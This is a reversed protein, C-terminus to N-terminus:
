FFGSLGITPIKLQDMWGARSPTAPAKPAQPPPPSAQAQAPQSFLSYVQKAAHQRSETHPVGPRFYGQGQAASGTFYQAFFEASGKAPASEFVRTWGILSGGKDHQGAYEQAFYRAQWEASNVNEGRALATSRARDYAERRVGTYQSLGRGAAAGREVVDLGSLGAKGTEVVWSGILGAAQEKTMPKIKGKSEKTVQDSTLFNWLYELEPSKKVAFLPAM